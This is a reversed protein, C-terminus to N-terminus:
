KLFIRHKIHYSMYYTPETKDQRIDIILHSFTCFSLHHKGSALSDSPSPAYPSQPSEPTILSDHTQLSDMFSSPDLDPCSFSACYTTDDNQILSDHPGGHSSHYQTTLCYLPCNITMCSSPHEHLKAEQQIYSTQHLKVVHWDNSSHSHISILSSLHNKVTILFNKIPTTISQLM